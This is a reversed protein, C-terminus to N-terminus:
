DALKTEKEEDDEDDLPGGCEACEHEHDGTPDFLVTVEDLVEYCPSPSSESKADRVGLAIAILIELDGVDVKQFPASIVADTRTASYANLYAGYITALTPSNDKNDDAM